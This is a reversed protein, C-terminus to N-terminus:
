TTILLHSTSGLRSLTGNTRHCPDRVSATILSSSSASNGVLGTISRAGSIPGLKDHRPTQLNHVLSKEFPNQEKGPINEPEVLAVKPCGYSFM